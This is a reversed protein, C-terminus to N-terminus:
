SEQIKKIELQLEAVKRLKPLQKMVEAFSTDNYKFEFLRVDIARNTWGEVEGLMLLEQPTAYKLKAYEYVDKKLVLDSVYELHTAHGEMDTDIIEWIKGAIM